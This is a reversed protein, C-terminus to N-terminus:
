DPSHVKGEYGPYRSFRRLLLAAYSDLAPNEPHTPKGFPACSAVLKPELFFGISHRESARELVRHPTAPVREGTMTAVMDGIHVSVSNEVHPVQYWTGDPGRGQLGPEGQWLLSLCAGDTHEGIAMPPEAAHGDVLRPEDVFAIGEPRTPYHLLRLTSNGDAFRRDIEDAPVAIFDALSTFLALSFNELISFYDQIASKWGEVPQRAPWANPEAFMEADRLPPYAVRREPGVDYYEAFSFRREPQASFYGRYRQSSEPASRQTAVALKEAEELDFFKLATRALRDLDNGGPIGTAVFVSSRTISDRLIQLTEDRAGANGSFLGAVEIVPADPFSSVM